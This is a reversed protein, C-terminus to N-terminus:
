QPASHGTELIADRCSFARQTSRKSTGLDTIVTCRSNRARNLFSAVSYDSIQVGWFPACLFGEGRWRWRPFHGRPGATLMLPLNQYLMLFKSLQRQQFHINHGHPTLFLNTDVNLCCWKNIFARFYHPNSVMIILKVIYSNSQLNQYTDINIQAM